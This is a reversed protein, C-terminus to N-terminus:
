QQPCVKRFEPIGLVSGGAQNEFSNLVLMWIAYICWLMVWPNKRIANLPTLEHEEQNALRGAQEVSEIFKVDIKENKPKEMTTSITEVIFLIFTTTNYNIRSILIDGRLFLDRTTQECNYSKISTIYINQHTGIM